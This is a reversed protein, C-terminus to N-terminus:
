QLIQNRALDLINKERIIEELENEESAWLDLVSNKKLFFMLKM